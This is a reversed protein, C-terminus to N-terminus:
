NEKGMQAKLDAFPTRVPKPNEDAVTIAVCESDNAHTAAFPLAMIMAEDVLEAPCLMDGDLEWHEYEDSDGDGFILRLEAQLPLLFPLLCRQCVAVITVAVHGSATPMNGQAARFGFNLQGSVIADRWDAPRKDVDLAELDKAIAESLREFDSVKAKIEIAQRSVALEQPARRQHLPNGMARAHYPGHGGSDFRVPQFRDTEAPPGTLSRGTRAL